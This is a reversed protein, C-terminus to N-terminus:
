RKMTAINRAFLLFQAQIEPQEGYEDILIKYGRLLAKLCEEQQAPRGQTWWSLTTFSGVQFSLGPNAQRIRYTRTTYATMVGPHHDLFGEPNQTGDPLGEERRHAYPRTLFPCAQLAYTACELHSPPEASATTILSIPGLTFTLFRGLREGCIFCREEKIARELKKWDVVRHDPVSDQVIVFFPVPFGRVDISLQRMRLPVPIHAISPHLDPM